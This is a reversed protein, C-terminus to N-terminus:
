FPIEDSGVAKGKKLRYLASAVEGITIFNNLNSTRDEQEYDDNTYTANARSQESEIRPSLLCQFYDKWKAM